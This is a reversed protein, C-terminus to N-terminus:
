NKKSVEVIQKDCFRSRVSKPTVRYVCVEFVYFGPRVPFVVPSESGKLDGPIVQYDGNNSVAVFTFKRNDPHREIRWGVTVEAPGGLMEVKATTFQKILYDQREYSNLEGALKSEEAKLENIRIKM